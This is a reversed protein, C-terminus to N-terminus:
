ACVPVSDCRGQRVGPVAGSHTTQQARVSQGEEGGARGLRGQTEVFSKNQHTTHKTGSSPTTPHAPHHQLSRPTPHQPNPAGLYSTNAGDRDFSPTSKRTLVLTHTPMSQRCSVPESMCAGRPKGLNRVSHVLLARGRCTCYQSPPNRPLFNLLLLCDHGSWRESVGRVGEEKQGRKQKVLADESSGLM